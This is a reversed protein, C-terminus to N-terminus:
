GLYDPGGVYITEDDPIPGVAARVIAGAFQEISPLPAAARRAAVADPDSRELLRVTTTGEIMDGSVVVLAIGKAQLSPRMARLTHEGAHKSAAVRVYDRPVEKRDVFHAQHSTVFVIRGGRAMLPLALRVVAEQADRNLRMAYGPDAGFEMGGSANLVLADLHGFRGAVGGMMAEVADEDTLDAQAVSARGGAAEVAAVVDHARRVKDRCGVIIHRSPDALQVAVEAGIGRSAGTILVVDIM